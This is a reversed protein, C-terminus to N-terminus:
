PISIATNTSADQDPLSGTQGHHIADTTRHQRAQAKHFGTSALLLTSFQGFRAFMGALCRSPCCFAILVYVSVTSLLYIRKKSSYDEKAGYISSAQKCSFSFM